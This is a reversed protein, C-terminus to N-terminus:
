TRSYFQLIEDEFAYNNVIEVTDTVSIYKLETDNLFSGEQIRKVGKELKVTQLNGCNAFSHEGITEVNGPIVIEELGTREFCGDPVKEIGKGLEVMRLNKYSSFTFPEIKEVDDGLVLEQMNEFKIWDVLWSFHSRKIKKVGNVEIKLVREADKKSFIPPFRRHVETVNIWEGTDHDIDGLTYITKGAFREKWSSKKPKSIEKPSSKVIYQKVKANHVGTLTEWLKSDNLGEETLYEAMDMLEEKKDIVQVKKSMQILKERIAVILDEKRCFKEMPQFDIEESNQAQKEFIKLAANAITKKRELQLVDLRPHDKFKIDWADIIQKVGDWLEKTSKEDTNSVFDDTKRCFREHEMKSKIENGEERFYEDIEYKIEFLEELENDFNRDLIKKNGSHAKSLFRNRVAKVRKEHSEALEFQGIYYLENVKEELEKIVFWMDEYATTHKGNEEM